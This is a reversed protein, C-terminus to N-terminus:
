LHWTVSGANTLNFANAPTCPAHSGAASNRYAAYYHRTSGAGPSGSAVWADTMTQVGDPFDINSEVGTVVTSNGKYPRPTLLGSVCRAGAGTQVGPSLQTTGMFLVTVNTTAQEHQIHFVLTNTPSSLANGTATLTAGGTGGAPTPGFNNCGRTGDDPLPQNGCPCSRIGSANPYCFGVMAFGTANRDRVFIDDFGNTDGPVLNSATSQFAVFRGDASISPYYSGFNGQAWASDVSVRETAGVQRDHVFVDWAGNTDGAVLNSALSHFEVFRGDPSISPYYSGSDAQAGASDVSVCENMGNQRDHVFVDAFGNADVAVLNTAYSVFAVFRGDDSISPYVSEFNGEAGGGTVSVRETTGLQRDHVFIDFNTALSQFVVFRGDYSISPRTTSDGNGEAGLTSVSVRETTGALLDRVFIDAFGNMDGAVLNTAYSVFAVFQGNGSISPFSESGGSPGDGPTGSLDVSVCQTAGTQLDHVFVDDFGNADGTVLNSAYSRFVVLRHFAVLSDDTSISPYESFGNAEAGGADVSVREITGSQLDRVFIDAFGNTDGAILNSAGSQFAVFRGDASISPYGSGSNGQTGAATVNVRQTVQAWLCTCSFFAIGSLRIVPIFTKITNRLMAREELGTTPDGPNGSRGRNQTPTSKKRCTALM